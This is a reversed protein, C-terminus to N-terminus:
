EPNELLWIWVVCTLIKQRWSQRKPSPWGKRLDLRSPGVMDIRRCDVRAQRSDVASDSAQLAALYEHRMFPTPHSQRALLGNWAAADIDRPDDHVRVVYDDPSGSM